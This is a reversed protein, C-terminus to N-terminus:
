ALDDAPTQTQPQCRFQRKRSQCAGDIGSLRLGAQNMMGVTSDLIRGCGADVRQDPVAHDRARAPRDIAVVVRFAFAENFRQLLLINVAGLVPIHFIEAGIQADEEPAIVVGRSQM